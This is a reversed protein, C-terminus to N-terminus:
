SSAISRLVKKGIREAFRLTNYIFNDQKKPVISKNRSAWLPFETGQQWDPEFYVEEESRLTLVDQELKMLLSFISQDHRHACFDRHQIQHSFEDTIPFFGETSMKQLWKGCFAIASQSRMMFAGAWIQKTFALHQFDTFMEFIEQKTWNRELLDMSFVIANHRAMLMLYEHWRRLSQNGYNIDCGADMYVVVDIDPHSELFDLIVIPKWVWYGYGKKHKQVFAKQENNLINFLDTVGYVCVASFWGSNLAQNRIRRAALRWFFDGGAFSVLGVKM